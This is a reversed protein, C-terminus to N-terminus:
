IPHYGAGIGGQADVDALILSFNAGVQPGICPLGIYGNVIAVLTSGVVVPAGSDGVIVCIQTLTWSAGGFVDGYVLGCTQGTTRGEKCAVAPFQAPVGVDTITTSGVHNVPIVAGEDFAIVAYDLDSGVLAITGVNGAEPDAEAAVGMGAGAAACHAATFGVLRGSGDRGITTLTCTSGDDLVIGSGGGLTVPAAGQATGATGWILLLAAALTWWRGRTM